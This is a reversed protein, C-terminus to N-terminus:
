APVEARNYGTPIGRRQMWEVVTSRSVGLEQAMQAQNLRREHYLDRLIDTIDRGFRAEVAQEERSKFLGQQSM